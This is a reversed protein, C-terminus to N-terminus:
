ARIPGIRLDHRDIKVLTAMGMLGRAIAITPSTSIIKAHEILV